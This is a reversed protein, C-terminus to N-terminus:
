CCAGSPAAATAAPAAPGCPFLGFHRSRDGRVEFHRGLWSDGVMAATNGCVLMPRHAEFVHHDDLVYAAASGQLTGKYTAV